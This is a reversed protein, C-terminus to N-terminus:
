RGPGQPAGPHRVKQACALPGRTLHDIARSFDYVGSIMM